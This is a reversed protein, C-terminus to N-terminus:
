PGAWASSVAMVADADTGPLLWLVTSPWSLGSLPYWGDANNLPTRPSVPRNSSAIVAEWSAAAMKRSVPSWSLSLAARPSMSVMRAACCAQSPPQTRCSDCFKVGGRRFQVHVPWREPLADIMRVYGGSQSRLQAVNEPQLSGCPAPRRTRAKYFSFNHVLGPASSLHREPISASSSQPASPPRRAPPPPQPSCCTSPDPVGLIAGLALAYCTAAATLAWRATLM